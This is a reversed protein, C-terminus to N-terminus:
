QDRRAGKGDHTVVTGDKGVTAKLFELSSVDAKLAAGGGPLAAETGTGDARPGALAAAEEATPERFLNEAEDRVARQADAQVGTRLAELREPSFRVALARQEEPTLTPMAVNATTVAPAASTASAPAQTQTPQAAAVVCVVVGAGLLLVTTRMSSEEPAVREVDVSSTCLQDSVETYRLLRLQAFTARVSSM